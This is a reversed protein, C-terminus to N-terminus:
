QKPTPPPHRAPEAPPTGPHRRCTRPRPPPAWVRRVEGKDRLQLCCLGSTRQPTSSAQPAPARRGRTGQPRLWGQARGPAARGGPGGPGRCCRRTPGARRVRAPRSAPDVRCLDPRDKCFTAHPARRRKAVGTRKGVLCTPLSGGACLGPSAADAGKKRSNTKSAGARPTATLCACSKPRNDTLDPARKM